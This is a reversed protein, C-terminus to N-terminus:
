DGLDSFSFETQALQSLLKDYVRVVMRDGVIYPIKYKISIIDEGEKKSFAFTQPYPIIHLLNENLFFEIILDTSFQAKSNEITLNIETTHNEYDISDWTSNLKLSLPKDINNMDDIAKIQEEINYLKDEISKIRIILDEYKKDNNIISEKDDLNLITTNNEMSNIKDCIEDIQVKIENLERENNTLEKPACSSLLVTLLIPLVVIKRM